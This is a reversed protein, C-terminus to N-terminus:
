ILRHTQSLSQLRVGEDADATTACMIGGLADGREQPFAPGDVVILDYEFRRIFDHEGIQRGVPHGDDGYGGGHARGFEAPAGTKGVFVQPPLHQHGVRPRNGSVDDNVTLRQRGSRDALVGDAM